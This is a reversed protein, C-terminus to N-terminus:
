LVRGEQRVQRVVFRTDPTTGLRLVEVVAGSVQRFSPFISNGDIETVYTVNRVSSLGTSVLTPSWKVRPVGLRTEFRIFVVNM